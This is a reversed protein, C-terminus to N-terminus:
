QAPTYLTIPLLIDALTYPLRISAPRTASSRSSNGHSRGGHGGGIHCECIFLARPRSNAQWIRGMGRRDELGQRESSRLGSIDCSNHASKFKVISHIMWSRKEVLFYNFYDKVFIVFDEICYKLLIHLAVLLNRWSYRLQHSPQLNYITSM